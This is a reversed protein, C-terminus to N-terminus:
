GFPHRLAWAANWSLRVPKGLITGEKDLMQGSCDSTGLSVGIVEERHQQEIEIPELDNVVADSMDYGILQEDLAYRCFESRSM